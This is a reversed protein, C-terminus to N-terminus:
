PQKIVAQLQRELYGTSGIAGGTTATSTLQYVSFTNIGETHTTVSCTVSVTFASLQTGAPLTPQPFATCSTVGGKSIQYSGWEIGAKAAQYARAGLMDMGSSQQQTNSITVAFLGLAAIVVLLFIASLLTFGCSPKKM